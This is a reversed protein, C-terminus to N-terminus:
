DDSRRRLEEIDREALDARRELVFVREIVQNHKQVHESLQEIKMETIARSKSNSALVGILTLVGTIAAALISEM